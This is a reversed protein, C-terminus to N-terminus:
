TRPLELVFESGNGNSSALKLDGGLVRAFGRAIPLGLGHHGGAGGRPADGRVFRDFVRERLGSAVGPGEDRVHIALQREDSAVSVSVRSGRPGHEVANAILNVLITTLKQADTVLAVSTDGDVALVIERALASPRVLAVADAVVPALDVSANRAVEVNADLRSLTLVHDLLTSLSRLAEQATAITERYEASSRERRLSVDFLTRVGALPTRLDHAVDATLRRQRALEEEIRALLADIKEVIPDLELPIEGGSPERHLRGPEVQAIQEAVALIPRTASRAVLHGSALAALGAIIVAGALAWRLQALTRELPALPRTVFLWGDARAPPEDEESQTSVPLAVARRPGSSAAAGVDLWAPATEGAHQYLWPLLAGADADAPASFVRAGRDTFVQVEADGLALAPKAPEVEFVMHGEDIEVRGALGVAEARLLQDLERRLAHSMVGQVIVAMLGVVLLTLATTAVLLRRRLSLRM